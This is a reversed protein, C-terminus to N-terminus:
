VLPCALVPTDPWARRLTGLDADPAQEPRHCIIVGALAKQMGAALAQCAQSFWMVRMTEGQTAFNQAVTEACSPEPGVVIVLRESPTPEPAAIPECVTVTVRKKRPTPM